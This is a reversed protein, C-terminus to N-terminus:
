RLKLEVTYKCVRKNNMDFIEKIKEAPLDNERILEEVDFDRPDLKTLNFVRKLHEINADKVLRALCDRYIYDDDLHKIDELAEFTVESNVTHLIM